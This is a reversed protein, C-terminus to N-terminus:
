NILDYYIPSCFTGWFIVVGVAGILLIGRPFPRYIRFAFLLCLVLIICCMIMGYGFSLDCVRYVWTKMGYHPHYALDMPTGGSFYHYMMKIQDLNPLLILFISAIFYGLKKNM